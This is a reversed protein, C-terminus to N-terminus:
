NISVTTLRDAEIDITFVDGNRAVVLVNNPDLVLPTAFTSEELPIPENWVLEGNAADLAWALGDDDVAFITNGAMVAGGRFLAGGKFEWIPEGTEANIAYIGNDLNTAYIVGAAEDVLPEGWYWNSADGFEWKQEGTAADVAYLTEGIGGVIIDGNVPTPDTLLGASADFTSDWADELTAANLARLHGEMTGLYLTGDALAPTSWVDGIHTHDVEEGTEANLVYLNGDTSPVYLRNSNLVVGAIIRDNTEFDWLCEGSDAALAYVFGDWAGFYVVGDAVVPKAYLGKLDREVPGTDGCEQQKAQPFVWVENFTDAEVATLKGSDVSLYLQNDAETPAAWGDPKAIRACGAALLLVALLPLTWALSRM